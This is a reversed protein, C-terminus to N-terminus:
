FLSYDIAFVLQFENFINQSVEDPNWNISGDDDFNYAKTFFLGLPLGQIGLKLGAGSSFRFNELALADGMTSFGEGRNEEDPKHGWTASTYVEANLVNRVLPVTLKLQNDWLVELDRTFPWGRATNMGDMFLLHQRLAFDEKDRQPFMFSFSSEASLVGLLNDRDTRPIDFLTLHGEAKSQNKIFNTARPDGMFSFPDNMVGGSVTFRNHLRFGSTPNHVFDRNDWTTTLYVSNNYLWQEHNNRIDEEYPRYKDADYFVNSWTFNYGGGVNFRGIDTHFTYGSSLGLGIEYELYDMLYQDDIASEGGASRYDEYSGFPIPVGDEDAQLQDRRHIRDLSLNIGGSWRRDFLWHELYSFDISQREPSGELSISFDSGTGFFNRDNWSLFGSVPFERGGGFTAGFRLDIRNAEEVMVDLGILGEESGYRPEVDVMDFLGTNYLNRMSTIMEARSFVEGPQLTIEREIVHDRTRENGIVQIDEVFAQGRETVQVEFSITNDAADRIERPEVDNYIYGQDYYVEAISSIDQQLRPINLTDGERLRVNQKLQEETFLTNGTISIGGFSWLPGEVIEFTLTLDIRDRDTETREIHVDTVEIDVYGREQYFEKIAEKDEELRSHVFIGRQFLSQEKSVIQRRLTSDSYNTNGSFTISDIRSQQGESVDYRIAVTNAEEDLEYEQSIEADAYGRELYKQEIMQPDNRFRSRVFFSGQTVSVTDRIEQSSLENNGTITLSTVLPEEVMDFVLIVHDDSIQSRRAAATFHSFFDLDYLDNQINRFSQETLAEGQYKEIIHELQQPEVQRLGEFEITEIENGMWWPEQAALSATVTLMMVLLLLIKRM